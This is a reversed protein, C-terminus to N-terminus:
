EDGGGIQLFCDPPEQMTQLALVEEEGLLSALISNANPIRVPGLVALSVGLVACCFNVNGRVMETKVSSFKALLAFCQTYVGLTKFATMDRQASLLTPLIITIQYSILSVHFCM